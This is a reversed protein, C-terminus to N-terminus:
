NKEKISKEKEGPPGMFGILDERSIKYQPDIKNILNQLKELKENLRNYPTKHLPCDKCFLAEEFIPPPVEVWDHAFVRNTERETDKETVADFGSGPRSTSKNVVLITLAPLKERCHNKIIDLPYRLALHHAGIKKGLDSHTITQRKRAVRTLISWIKHAREISLSTPM